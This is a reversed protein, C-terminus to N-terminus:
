RTPEAVGPAVLLQDLCRRVDDISLGAARLALSVEEEWSTPSRSGDGALQSRDDEMDLERLDLRLIRIAHRHAVVRPIPRAHGLPSKPVSSDNKM